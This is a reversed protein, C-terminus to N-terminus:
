PENVERWMELAIRSAERVIVELDCYYWGACSFAGIELLYYNGQKTRCIDVCWLRDPNYKTDAVEQALEWAKPDYEPKAGPKGDTVYQSGTIVKGDAVVFRWEHAVNRPEAIVCLDSAKTGYFGLYDVDKEFWEKYIMKGTFVKDSRDPRVFITDEIGVCQYLFDKQRLMDGYPIMLYNSNLLFKALAPYYSRCEYAPRNYFVGPVWPTERAVQAAFNLSGYYIVCDDRDFLGKYGKDDEYPVYSAIKLDMGQRVVEEHLRKLNESFVDTELFWKAKM